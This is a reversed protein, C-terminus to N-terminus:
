ARADTRRRVRYIGLALMGVLVLTPEPVAAAGLPASTGSGLNSDIVAYDDGTVIGDLNADGQLWAVGALPTTGLNSDIAPYDDGTVQGDLNLDGFYTYRGVVSNADIPDGSGPPWDPVGVLANDFMALITNGAQQGATSIIGTKSPDPFTSYGQFVLDRISLFPNGAHYQVVLDDDNLDLKGSSAISLANTQLLRRPGGGRPALTVTTAAAVNLVTLHQSAGFNVSSNAIVALGNADTQFNTVGQSAIFNADPGHYQAGAVTLTGAGTKTTVSNATTTFRGNLLLTGAQVDFTSGESSVACNFSTTGAATTRLTGRNIFATGPKPNAGLVAIPVTVTVTSNNTVITGRVDEPIQTPSSIALPSSVAVNDTNSVLADVYMPNTAGNPVTFRVYNIGAVPAASLTPWNGGASGDLATLMQSWQMGNFSSLGATYPKSWDAEVAGPDPSEQYGPTSIGQSYFNTPMDFSMSGLDVWRVGDQSVQVDAVRPNTYPTAVAGADGNPWNNDIVGVAAHFGLSNGFAAATKPLKLTLVGGGGIGTMHNADFASNFPMLVGFGTDAAPKGLSASSNQYSNDTGPSYDVVQDAFFYDARAGSVGILVGAVAATVAALDKARFM